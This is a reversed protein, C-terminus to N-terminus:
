YLILLMASIIIFLKILDTFLYFIYLSFYFSVNYVTVVYLILIGITFSYFFIMIFSDLYYFIVYLLIIIFYYFISSIFYLLKVNFYDNIVDLLNILNFDFYEIFYICLLLLLNILAIGIIFCKIYCEIFLILYSYFIIINCYIDIFPFNGNKSFLVIILVEYNIILICNM